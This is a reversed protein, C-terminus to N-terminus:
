KRKSAKRTKIQARLCRYQLLFSCGRPLLSKYFRFNFYASSTNSDLGALFHMMTFVVCKNM